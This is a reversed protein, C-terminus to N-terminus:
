LLPATRRQQNFLAAHHIREIVVRRVHNKERRRLQKFDAVDRHRTQVLFWIADFRKLIVTPYGIVKLEFNVLIFLHIVNSTHVVGKFDVRHIPVANRPTVGRLLYYQSSSVIVDDVPQVHRALFQGFDQM